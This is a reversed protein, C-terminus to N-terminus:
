AKTERRAGVQASVDASRWGMAHGWAVPWFAIATLLVPIAPEDKLRPHCHVGGATGIGAMLWGVVLIVLIAGTM